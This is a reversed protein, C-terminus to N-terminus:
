STITDRTAEEHDNIAGTAWVTHITLNGSIDIHQKDRYEDPMKAKAHFILLTTDFKRVKGAFKCLQYVDVEYGEVGRRYIEARLVDKADEKAMNYAFSFPEDNELWHYVTARGIGAVRSALLVNAHEAYSDLFLRQKARKSLAKKSTESTHLLEHETM